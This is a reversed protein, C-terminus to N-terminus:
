SPWNIGIYLLLILFSVFVLSRWLVSILTFHELPVNKNNDHIHTHNTM